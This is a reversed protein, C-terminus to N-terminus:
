KLDELKITKMMDSITAERVGLIYAIERQRFGLSFLCVIARKREPLKDLWPNEVIFREFSEDDSVGEHAPELPVLIIDQHTKGLYTERLYDIHAQSITQKISKGELTKMALWQAFDEDQKMCLAHRYRLKASEKLGQAHKQNEKQSKRSQVKCPKCQSNPYSKSETRRAIDFETLPKEIQCKTCKKLRAELM